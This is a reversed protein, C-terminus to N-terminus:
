PKLDVAARDSGDMYLPVSAHEHVVMWAGKTMRYCVTARVWVDTEEGNTRKGTIRNLSRSFGVEGSTTIRLDRIEYGVPGSFTAFWQQLGTRYANAGVHQLPPALDFQVIDRDIHSMVADVDRARIAKTWDEIVGRVQADASREVTKIAKM